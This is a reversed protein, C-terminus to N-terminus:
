EFIGPRTIAKRNKEKITVSTPSTKILYPRDSRERRDHACLDHHGDRGKQGLSGGPEVHSLRRVQDGHPAPFAILLVNGWSYPCFRSMSVLYSDGRSHGVELESPVRNLAKEAMKRGNGNPNPEM